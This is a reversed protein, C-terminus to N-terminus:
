IAVLSRDEERDSVPELDPTFRALYAALDRQSCGIMTALERVAAPAIEVVGDPCQIQKNHAWATMLRFEATDDALLAQLDVRLALDDLHIRARQLSFALLSPSSVGLVRCMEIFRLMTFHRVGHEYSLLTRDGIGSPLRAVLYGRSWGNAERAHRLAEGLAKSIVKDSVEESVM